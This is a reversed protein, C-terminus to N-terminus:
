TLFDLVDADMFFSALTPLHLFFLIIIIGTGTAKWNTKEVPVISIEVTRKVIVRITKQCHPCRMTLTTADSFAGDKFIIKTCYPCNGVAQDGQNPM